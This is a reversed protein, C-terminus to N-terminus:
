WCLGLLRVITQDDYRYRIFQAPNGGVIAYPPVDKTVVSRSAVIACDGVQVGPMFVAGNGVWVDHGIVTDGKNPWSDPMAHEWGQGFVPFPYNTFWNTRPNGGNMIFTVGQALSCFKGIILKDGIFDFHYLVNREFAELGEPDDYYTYDGVVINPRTVVNKLFVVRLNDPQPHRTSPSPGYQEQIAM